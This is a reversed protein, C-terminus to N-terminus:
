FRIDAEWYFVSINLYKHVRLLKLWRIKEAKLTPECLYHIHKWQPKRQGFCTM